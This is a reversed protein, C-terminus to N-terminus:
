NSHFSEIEHRVDILDASEAVRYAFDRFSEYNTFNKYVRTSDAMSGNQPAQIRITTDNFPIRIMKAFPFYLTNDEANYIVDSAGRESKVIEDFTLNYKASKDTREIAITTECSFEYIVTSPTIYMLKKTFEELNDFCHFEEAGKFEDFDEFNISDREGRESQYVSLERAIAERTSEDEEFFIFTPALSASSEEKNSCATLLTSLIAIIITIITIITFLITKKTKM